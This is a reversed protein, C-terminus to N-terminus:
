PVFGSPMEKPKQVGPVTRPGTGHPTCGAMRCLRAEPHLGFLRTATAPPPPGSCGRLLLQAILVQGAEWRRFITGVSFSLGSVGEAARRRSQERPFLLSSTGSPPLPLIRSSGSNLLAGCSRGNGGGGPGSPDQPLKRPKRPHWGVVLKKVAVVDFYAVQAPIVAAAPV